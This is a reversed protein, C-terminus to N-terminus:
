PNERLVTIIRKENRSKSGLLMSVHIAKMNSVDEGDVALLKDGLCVDDYIPSESKIESVYAAGGEPPSDVIVGLKGAPAIIDLQRPSIKETLRAEQTSETDSSASSRSDEDGVNSRMVAISREAQRSKRALMMSIDVAKRDSVDEGDIAIVKDGLRLKGMMPSQEKIESVFASGGRSDVVVGLKGPPAIVNVSRDSGHNTGNRHNTSANQAQRPPPLVDETSSSDSSPSLVLPSSAGKDERLITIKRQPQKSKRALCMSIDVATKTSVDEGDIALVKDGLKIEDKMPSTDKINSVYALGGDESDVVVGLKGPPAIIVIKTESSKVQTPFSSKARIPVPPPFPSRTVPMSTAFDTLAPTRSSAFAPEAPEEENGDRLVTIKRNPQRSKRALMMSIDVAKSKSVDEDDVAIVRDGIRLKGRMPSEEKISSVFATGGEQPMEVVIGLKGAPANIDVKTRSDDSSSSSSDEEAFSQLARPPPAMRMPGARPPASRAFNSAQTARDDDEGAEGARLVTIERAPNNRKAALLRTVDRAPMERVDVGDVAVIKDGVHIKGLLISEPQVVHVRVPGPPKPNVLILSVNGPPAVVDVEHEPDVNDPVTVRNDGSGNGISSLRAVLSPLDNKPRVSARVPAERPDEKDDEGGRLVTIKREPNNRRAGLLKSVEPAKKETMDEGDVAIIRDGVEIKGVMVGDDQVKFVKAPGPPKPSILILGIKGAPASFDLQQESDTSSESTSPSPVRGSPSDDDDEDVERLVTIKRRAHTSKSALLKSVNIATMARVDQGDVAVIKDGMIAKGNLPSDERINFVYAPGPPAPPEPTVLVVGLKGAPAVLDLRREKKPFVATSAETVDDDNYANYAMAEAEDDVDFDMDHQTGEPVRRVVTIKREPQRSKRALIRSVEVADMRQVDENDVAVIKDELRIEGRLPSTEKIECVFPSGGEPATDVIVGLKGPPAIVYITVDHGGEEEDSLLADPDFKSSGQAGLNNQRHGVPAAVRGGGGMGGELDEYTRADTPVSRAVSRAGSPEM